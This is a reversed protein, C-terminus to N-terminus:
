FEGASLREPAGIGNELLAPTTSVHKDKAMPNIIPLTQRRRILSSASVAEFSRSAFWAAFLSDAIESSVPCTARDIPRQRQMDSDEWDQQAYPWWVQFAQLVQAAMLDM